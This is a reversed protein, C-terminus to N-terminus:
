NWPPDLLVAGILGFLAGAFIRRVLLEDLRTRLHSGVIIGGLGLAAFTAILSIDITMGASSLQTGSAVAGATSQVAILALSTGAAIDFRLGGFIVLAPVILFGGGVGVIGTLIGVSAAAFGLHVPRITFPESGQEQKGRLMAVAAGIVVVMLISERLEPSLRAGIGAGLVAGLIGTPAAILATSLSFSGSRIAGVAGTGAILAVIWLSETVAIELPRGLGHVLIPVTLISGGSGLLGLAVGVVIAGLITIM